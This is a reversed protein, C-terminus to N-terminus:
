HIETDIEKYESSASKYKSYVGTTHVLIMRKVNSSIAASVVKRSYRIGAIHVLTDVGQMIESLFAEDTIDGIRREIPLNCKDLLSVDSNERLTVRISEATKEVENSNDILEQLFYKGSHGTIGIILVKKM